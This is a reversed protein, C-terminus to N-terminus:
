KVVINTGPLAARLAAIADVPVPCGVLRVVKLQKLGHIATVDVLGACRSLDLEELQSLNRLPEASLLHPCETLWLNRLSQCAQLANFDALAACKSIHLSKLQTASGLCALNQLAPSNHFTLQRLQPFHSVITFDIVQPCDYFDLRELAPFARLTKVDSLNNCFGLLVEKPQFQILASAFADLSTAPSSMLRVRDVWEAAKPDPGQKLHRWMENWWGRFGPASGRGREGAEFGMRQLERAAASRKMSPGISLTIWTLAAALALTVTLLIWRGIRSARAPPM